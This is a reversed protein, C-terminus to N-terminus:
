SCVAVLNSAMALLKEKDELEWRGTDDPRRTEDTRARVKKAGCPM